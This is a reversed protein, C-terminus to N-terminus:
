SLDGVVKIRVRNTNEPVYDLPIESIEVVKISNATAGAAIAQTTAKETADSISDKRPSYQYQYLGEYQGSVQAISAGIANAVDGDPKRYLHRVGKLNDPIIIHGGGVLVLDVPGAQTKIKDLAVETIDKIIQFVKKAFALPLDKVLQPDGIEALGLRVAVDTTTLVSGGFVLAQSTLDYGVSDPGITIKGQQERIVSGGGLGISLIDPMRFNTRVGGIEVSVSSERPFGHQLVGLDSTTGGVDLVVANELKALYAAGRISNTPGCAITLVPFQRAFALSMLSGDNQCLFANKTDIGLSDLAQQFSTSIRHIVKALAGNLITANERDIFGISGIKNSCSIPFDEGFIGQAWHAVLEEQDSKIASFVGVIALADIKGVWSRLIRQIEEQNLPSLIRGDFEYGGPVLAFKHSVVKKLEGPWATYPLVSATAPYALRLIGVKALNKREVISNTCQTTGLMCHSITKVDVHSSAIVKALAQQIGTQIDSTTPVKIRAVIASEQNLIVADTNTGGVDIGIKFM